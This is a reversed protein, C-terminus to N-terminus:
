PSPIGQRIQLEMAMRVLHATNRAGTKRMLSARHIEVTRASLKMRAAAEKNSLGGVVMALIERERETLSEFREEAQRRELLSARTTADFSLARRVRDLLDDQSIPKQLYDFAGHQMAEVAVPIEAVGTAFIVPIVAGRRNLEQQLELGSMDPMRIDLLLCGPRSHDYHDLFERGSGFQEAPLGAHQVILECYRRIQEDDDVIFVTAPTDNM